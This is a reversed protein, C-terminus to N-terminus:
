NFKVWFLGRFDGAKYNTAKDSPYMESIQSQLKNSINSGHCTLCLGKIYIPEVYAHKGNQLKVVKGEKSKSKEYEKLINTMWSEPSNRSNRYKLSTRGVSYSKSNKSKTIAEANLNCVKLAGMPGSKKMAGKLEKMLGKKLPILAKKGESSYDLAEVSLMLMVMIIFKM